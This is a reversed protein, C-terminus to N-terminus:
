KFFHNFFILKKMKDTNNYNLFLYGGLEIILPNETKNVCFKDVFGPFNSYSTGCAIREDYQFYCAVENILIANDINELLFDALKQKLLMGDEDFLEPFTKIVSEEIAINGIEGLKKDNFDDSLREVIYRFIEHYLSTKLLIGLKIMKDRDNYNEKIYNLFEKGM